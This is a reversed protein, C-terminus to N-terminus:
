GAQLIDPCYRSISCHSKMNGKILESLIELGTKGLYQM